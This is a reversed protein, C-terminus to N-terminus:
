DIRKLLERAKDKLELFRPIYDGPKETRALDKVLEYMEEPVTIIM